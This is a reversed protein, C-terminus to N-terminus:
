IKYKDNEKNFKIAEDKIEDFIGWLAGYTVVIKGQDDLPKDSKKYFIVKGGENYMCSGVMTQPDIPVIGYTYDSNIQSAVYDMLQTSAHDKISYGFIGKESKYCFDYDGCGSVMADSSTFYELDLKLTEGFKANEIDLIRAASGEEGVIGCVIKGDPTKAAGEIWGKDNKIEGTKKYSSDLVYACQGTLAIYDGKEDTLIDIIYDGPEQGIAESIDIRQSVNGSDDAKLLFCQQTETKQDYKVANLLVNQDQDLTISRIYEDNNDFTPECILTVDSGDPNMSYVRTIEPYDDNEESEDEFQVSMFYVKDGSVVFSSLAGDVGELDLEESAFIMDTKDASNKALAQTGKVGKAGSGGCATLSLTTTLAMGLAILKKWIPKM